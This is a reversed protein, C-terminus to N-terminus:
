DKSMLVVSECGYYKAVARNVWNSENEKIGVSRMISLDDPVSEIIVDKGKGDRLIEFVEEYGDSYKQFNQQQFNVWINFPAYGKINTENTGGLIYLALIGIAVMCIKMEKSLRVISIGYNALWMGFYTALMILVFIIIGNQIFQCRAPMKASGGGLVVPFNTICVGVFSYCALLVVRGLGIKKTKGHHWGIAGPILLALILPTKLLFALTRRGANITAWVIAQVLHFEEDVRDRRVFNGPAMANLLATLFAVGFILLCIRRMKTDKWTFLVLGLLTVNCIAAVQLSGGAALFLLIAILIIHRKKGGSLLVKITFAVALICFSFPVTHVMGGCFWYLTEGIYDGHTFFCIAIAYMFNVIYLRKENCVYKVFNYILTYVSCLYFTTILFCGIRVGIVGARVMPSAIYLLFTATFTGQWAFYEEITLLTAAKIISDSKALVASANSFDDAAPFIYFTVLLLPLVLCVVLVISSVNLLSDRKKM